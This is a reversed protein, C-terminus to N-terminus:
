LMQNLPILIICHPYPFKMYYKRKGNWVYLDFILNHMYLTSINYLMHDIMKKNLRMRVKFNDSSPLSSSNRELYCKYLSACLGQLKFVWRIYSNSSGQNCTSASWTQLLITLCLLFNDSIKSTNKHKKIYMCLCLRDIVRDFDKHQM